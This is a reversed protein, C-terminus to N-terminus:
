HLSSLFSNMERLVEAENTQIVFRDAHPLRIVRASPLGAEFAKAITEM